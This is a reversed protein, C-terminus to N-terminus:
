VAQAAKRFEDLSYELECIAKYSTAALRFLGDDAHGYTEMFTRRRREEQQVVAALLNWQDSNM